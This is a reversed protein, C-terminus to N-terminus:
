PRLVNGNVELSPLSAELNLRNHLPFIDRRRNQGDGTKNQIQYHKVEGSTETCVATLVLAILVGFLKKM